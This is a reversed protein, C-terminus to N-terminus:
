FKRGITLVLRPNSGFPKGKVRMKWESMEMRAERNVSRATRWADVASVLRNLILAGIAFKGRNFAENSQNRIDRYESLNAESRWQWDWYEVDPYYPRSPEIIRGASNYEDRSIYFSLLRYFEDDKGEPDIGANARAYAKYDKRKVSGITEFYGFAVWAIGESALFIGARNKAGAYWQGAGPLLLSYLAARGVNVRDEEREFAFEDLNDALLPSIADPYSKVDDLHIPLLDRISRPEQRLITEPQATVRVSSDAIVERLGAHARPAAFGVIVALMGVTVIVRRWHLTM